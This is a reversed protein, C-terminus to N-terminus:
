LVQMQNVYLDSAENASLLKEWIYLNDVAVKGFDGNLTYSSAGFVLKPLGIDYVTHTVNSNIYVDGEFLVGGNQYVTVYTANPNIAVTLHYWTQSEIHKFKLFSKRDTTSYDHLIFNIDVDYVIKWGSSKEYEM